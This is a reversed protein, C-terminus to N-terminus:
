KAAIDKYILYSKVPDKRLTLFTKSQLTGKEGLEGTFDVLEDFSQVGAHKQLAALAEARTTKIHINFDKGTLKKLRKAILDHNEEIVKKVGSGVVGFGLIAINIHTM